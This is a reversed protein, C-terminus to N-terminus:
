PNSINSLNSVEDALLRFGRRHYFTNLANALANVAECSREYLARFLELLAISIAM